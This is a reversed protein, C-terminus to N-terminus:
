ELRQKLKVLINLIEERHWDLHDGKVKSNNVYRKADLIAKRIRQKDICYKAIDKALLVDRFMRGELSPFDKFFEKATM